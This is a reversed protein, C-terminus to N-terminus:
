YYESYCSEDLIIHFSLEYKISKIKINEKFVNLTKLMIVGRNDWWEM